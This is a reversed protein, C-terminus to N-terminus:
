AKQSKSNKMKYNEKFKFIKSLHSIITLEWLIAEQPSATGVWSYWSKKQGRDGSGLKQDGHLSHEKM